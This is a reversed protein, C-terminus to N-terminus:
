SHLRPAVAAGAGGVLVAAATVSTGNEANLVSRVRVGLSQEGGVEVGELVAADFVRRRRQYGSGQSPAAEARVSLSSPPTVLTRTALEVIPLPEPSAVVRRWSSGDTGAAYRLSGTAKPRATDRASSSPRIRSPRITQPSEPQCIISIVQRNPFPEAVGSSPWGL